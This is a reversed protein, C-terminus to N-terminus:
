LWPEWQTGRKPALFRQVPEAATEIVVAFPYHHVSNIFQQLGNPQIGEHPRAASAALNWANLQHTLGSVYDHFRNFVDYVDECLYVGGPRLHPLLQELTVTQQEYMHGGDDIVVDLVPVDQRFRKWFDADAQDGIFIRVGESEYARCDPQIDVGYVRCGPGFYSRWMGLSGGSYVGIELLHVERGVFKALHRHYIEFYHRWKWIGPGTTNADFYVELPNTPRDVCETERHGATRVFQQGFLFGRVFAPLNEAARGATKLRRRHRTPLVNLLRSGAKLFLNLLPAAM